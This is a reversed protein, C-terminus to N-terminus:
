YASGISCHQQRKRKRGGTFLFLFSDYFGQVSQRGALLLFFSSPRKNKKKKKASTDTAPKPGFLQRRSMERKKEHFFPSNFSRFFFFHIGKKARHAAPFSLSIFNRKGLFIHCFIIKFFFTFKGNKVGDFCTKKKERNGTMVRQPQGVSLKVFEHRLSKKGGGKTKNDTGERQCVVSPRLCTLVRGRGLLLQCHSSPFLFFSPYIDIFYNPFKNPFRGKRNHTKKKKKCIADALKARKIVGITEFLFKHIKGELNKKRSGGVFISSLFFLPTPLGKWSFFGSFNELWSFDLKTSSHSPPLSPSFRLKLADYNRRWYSSSNSIGGRGRRGECYTIDSLNNFTPFCVGKGKKFTM